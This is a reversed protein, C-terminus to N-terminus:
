SVQFHHAVVLFAAIIHIACRCLLGVAAVDGEKVATKLFVFLEDASAQASSGIGM